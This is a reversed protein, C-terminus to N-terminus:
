RIKILQPGYCATKILRLAIPVDSTPIYRVKFNDCIYLIEVNGELIEELLLEGNQKGQIVKEYGDVSSYCKSYNIAYYDRGMNSILIAAAMSSGIQSSYKRNIHDKVEDLSDCKKFFDPNKMFEDVKEKIDNKDYNQMRQQTGGCNSSTLDTFDVVYYIGDEYFYNFIHGSTGLKLITGWEEFDNALMYCALETIEACVGTNYNCISGGDVTWVWGDGYWGEPETFTYCFNRGYIYAVMDRVTHINQRWTEADYCYMFADSEDYKMSSAKSVDKGDNYTTVAYKKTEGDVTIATIGQKLPVVFFDDLLAVSTDEIVVDSSGVYLKDTLYLVSDYQGKVSELYSSDQKGVYYPSYQVEIYDGSLVQSGIVNNITSFYKDYRGGYRYCVENVVETEVGYSTELVPAKDTNIISVEPSPTPTETVEPAPAPTEATEPKETPAATPAPEETPVPTNTAAIVETPEPLPTTTVESRIVVEEDRPQVAATNGSGCAAVSLMSTVLIVSVISKKM